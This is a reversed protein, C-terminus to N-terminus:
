EEHAFKSGAKISDLVDRELAEKLDLEERIPSITSGEDKKQLRRNHTRIRHCNSCVLECKLIEDLIRQRSFKKGVADSLEVIKTVNPLHDFDMVYPPYVVGCDSCPKNQKLSDIFTKRSQRAKREIANAKDRNKSAWDSHKKSHCTKCRYYYPDTKPGRLHSPSRKVFLVLEKTEKCGTCTRMTM